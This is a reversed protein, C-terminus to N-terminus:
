IGLRSPRSSLPCPSPGRHIEGSKKEEEGAAQAGGCDCLIWNREVIFCNLEEDTAVDLGSM